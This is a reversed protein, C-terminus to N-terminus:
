YDTGVLRGTQRIIESARAMLERSQQILARSEKTQRIIHLRNDAIRTRFRAIDSLLQEYLKRDEPM